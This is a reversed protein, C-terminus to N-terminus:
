TKMIEEKLPSMQIPSTHTCMSLPLSGLHKHWDSRNKAAVLQHKGSCQDMQYSM